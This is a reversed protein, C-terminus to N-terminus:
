SRADVWQAVATHDAGDPLWEVAERWMAVVRESVEAPVDLEEALGLAISIDKLMLAADFGSDFTGGLIYRPFKVQTSASAGSSINIVDIMVEPDLGFRRGAAVAECSALLHTASLLNNLAKLAHVAGVPGVHLVNSGMLELLPRVRQFAQPPGGAMITLTGDLAKPVGGSVPADVLDIGREAAAEALERTAMPESSSMDVLTASRDM